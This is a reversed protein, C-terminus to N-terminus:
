RAPYLPILKNNNLRSNNNTNYQNNYTSAYGLEGQKQAIRAKVDNVCKNFQPTRQIYGKQECQIEPAIVKLGFLGATSSLLTLACLAKVFKM